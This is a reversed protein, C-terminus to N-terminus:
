DRWNSFEVEIIAAVLIIGIGIALYTIWFYNTEAMMNTTAFRNNNPLAPLTACPAIFSM